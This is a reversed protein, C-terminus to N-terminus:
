SGSTSRDKDSEASWLPNTLDDPHLGKTNDTSHWYSEDIKASEYTPKKSHEFPCWWMETAKTLYSLWEFLAVSHPCYMTCNLIWYLRTKAYVASFHTQPLIQTKLDYRHSGKDPLFERYRRLNTAGLLRLHTNALLAVLIVIPMLFIPLYIFLVAFAKKPVSLLGYNGGIKITGDSASCGDCARPASAQASDASNSNQESDEMLM